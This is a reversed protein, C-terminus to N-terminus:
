YKVVFSLMEGYDKKNDRRFSFFRDRDCRTCFPFFDINNRPIGFELLLLYNLLPLNLYHKGHRMTFIKESYGDLEELFSYYRDDDVDYCCEGISPGMAVIIDSKRSGIETMKEVMKQPMKKLSGRWGQHSIGIVGNNKDVYIMPICDATRVTLVADNERTVVGDMDELKEINGGGSSVFYTTNVSHIQEPVVLKKYNIGSQNLYAIIADIKTADGAAKTCFGSIFGNNNIKTSYLAKLDPDYTIM